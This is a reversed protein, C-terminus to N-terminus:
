SRRQAALRDHDSPPLAARAVADRMLTYVGGHEGPVDSLRNRVKFLMSDWEFFGRGHKPICAREIPLIEGM